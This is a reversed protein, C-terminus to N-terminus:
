RAARAATLTVPCLARGLISYYHTEHWFLINIMTDGELQQVATAIAYGPDIPDTAPWLNFLFFVSSEGDTYCDRVPEGPMIYRVPPGLNRREEESLEERREAEVPDYCVYKFPTNYMITASPTIGAGHVRGGKDILGGPFCASLLLGGSVLPLGLLLRFTIHRVRSHLGSVRM